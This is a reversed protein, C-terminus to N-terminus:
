PCQISDSRAPRPCRSRAARWRHPHDDPRDVPEDHLGHRRCEFAPRRGDSVDHPSCPFGFADHDEHCIGERRFEKRKISASSRWLRRSSRGRRTRSSTPRAFFISTTRLSTRPFRSATLPNNRARPRPGAGNAMSSSAVVFVSARASSMLTRAWRRFAGRMRRRSKWRAFSTQYLSKEGPAKAFSYLTCRVVECVVQVARDNWDFFLETDSGPTFRADSIVRAGNLSLDVLNVAVDRLHAALPVDLRIRHFRRRDEPKESQPTSSQATSVSKSLM